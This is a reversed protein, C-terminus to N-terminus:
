LTYLFPKVMTLIMGADWSEELILRKHLKGRQELRYTYLFTGKSKRSSIQYYGFISQIPSICTHKILSFVM